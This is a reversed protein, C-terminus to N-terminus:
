KVRKLLNRLRLKLDSALSGYLLLKAFSNLKQEFRIHESHSSFTMLNKLSNNKWDGDKHHVCENRSLSRGLKKEMLIRAYCHYTGKAVRKLVRNGGIKFGGKWNPNKSKVLGVKGKESDSIKKKWAKSFKRGLNHGPKGTLAESIAERHAKAMKFGKKRSM